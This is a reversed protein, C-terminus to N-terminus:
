PHSHTVGDDHTHKAPEHARGGMGGMGWMMAAMMAMCALPWLLFLASGGVGSLFLVAGVAVLGIMLYSHKGHMHVLGLQEFGL